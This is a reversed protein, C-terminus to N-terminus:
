GLVKKTTVFHLKAVQELVGEGKVKVLRKATADVNGGAGKPLTLDFERGLFFLSRHFAESALISAAGVAPISEAKTRLVLEAARGKEKLGRRFPAENCFKDVVITKADTKELVCELATGHAWALLTNLNGFKRYLQNYKVPGIVVVEHPLHEKILKSTKEIHSRSLKKSDGLKAAEMVSAYEPGYAVAAVVLPGFYDGKGSEDSGVVTSSFELIAEEQAKQKPAQGEHDALYHAVFMDTGKGQVVCKGSNYLTVSVGEGKAGFRAYDVARFEFDGGHVAQELSDMESSTLKAVFTM